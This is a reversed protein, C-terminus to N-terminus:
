KASVLMAHCSRSRKVGSQQLVGGPQVAATTASEAGAIRGSGGSCSSSSGSAISGAESGVDSDDDTSCSSSSGSAISRGHMDCKDSHVQSAKGADAVAKALLNSSIGATTSGCGGGRGGSSSRSSSHPNAAAMWTAMLHTDSLGHQLKFGHQGGKVEEPPQRLAIARLGACRM